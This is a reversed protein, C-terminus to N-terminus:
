LIPRPTVKWFTSSRSFDTRKLESLFMVSFCAENKRTVDQGKSITSSEPRQSDADENALGGIADQPPASINQPTIAGEKRGGQSIGKTQWDKVLGSPKTSPATEKIRKQPRDM